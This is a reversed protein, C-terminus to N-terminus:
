VFFGFFVRGCELRRVIKLELFCFLCCNGFFIYEKRLFGFSKKRDNVYGNFGINYM